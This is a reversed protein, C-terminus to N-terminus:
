LSYKATLKLVLALCDNLSDLEAPTLRKNRFTELTRALVDTELRDGASLKGARLRALLESAHSLRLGTEEAAVTDEAPQDEQYCSIKPPRQPAEAKEQAEEELEMHFKEYMKEAKTRKKRGKSVPLFFVGRLLICEIAFLGLWVFAYRTEGECCVLLFGIASFILCVPSYWNKKRLVRFVTAVPLLLVPFALLSIWDPIKGIASVFGIFVEM